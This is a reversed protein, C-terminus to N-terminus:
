SRHPLSVRFTADQRVTSQVSIRGGHLGAIKQAIALGLGSGGTEHSRSQEVRYFRDFIYPLADEPIGIGTDTITFIAREPESQLTVTIEGGSPTYQIANALLNTLLRRLLGIDGTIIVPAIENVHLTLRKKQLLPHTHEFVELFVENLAVPTFSLPLSQSDMRALLLLDEVIHQLHRADEIVNTLAERYDEVTRKRRLAVEVNCILEALPTKLEHSVDGSFQKIQQFSRELHAIMENLTEALEGIEDDSEIPPLRLSLDEATIRKTVAVMKKVPSFARKMFVYGLGSLIALLAPSVGGFIYLLNHLTASDEQLSLALQLIYPRGDRDQVHLIIVRLPFPFLNTVTEAFYPADRITHYAEASYPLTHESLTATKAVVQPALDAEEPFTQLQIYAVRVLFIERTIEDIVDMFLDAVEEADEYLSEPDDEDRLTCEAVVEELIKGGNYIMQDVNNQLVTQFSFYVIGGFLLALLSITGIYWITLQLRISSM